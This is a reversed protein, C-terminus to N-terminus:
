GPPDIQDVKYINKDSLLEDGMKGGTILCTYKDCKTKSFPSPDRMSLMVVLYNAETLLNGTSSVRAIAYM